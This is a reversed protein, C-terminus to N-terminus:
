RPNRKRKKRKKFAEAQGRTQVNHTVTRLSLFYLSSRSPATGRMKPNKNKNVEASITAESRKPQKYDLV